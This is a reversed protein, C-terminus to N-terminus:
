HSDFEGGWLQAALLAIQNEALAAFPMPTMRMSHSTRVFVKSMAPLDGWVCSWIASILYKTKLRCLMIDIKLFKYIKSIEPQAWHEPVNSHAHARQPM